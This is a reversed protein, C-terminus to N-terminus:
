GKEVTEWYASLKEAVRLSINDLKSTGNKIKQIMSLPIGTDKSIRYPTIDSAILKEINQRM